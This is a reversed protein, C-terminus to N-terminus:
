QSPRSFPERGRRLHRSPINASRSGAPHCRPPSVFTGTHHVSCATGRPTGRAAPMLGDADPRSGRIAGPHAAPQNSDTSRGRATSSEFGRGDAAGKPVSVAPARVGSLGGQRPRPSFSGVPIDGDSGRGWRVGAVSGLGAMFSSRNTPQQATSPWTLPHASLLPAGEPSTGAPTGDDDLEVGGRRVGRM